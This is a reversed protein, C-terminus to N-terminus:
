IKDFNKIKPRLHESVNGFNIDSNDLYYDYRKQYDGKSFNYPWVDMMMNENNNNEKTRFRSDVMFKERQLEKTKQMLHKNAKRIYVNYYDRGKSQDFDLINKKPSKSHKKLTMTSSFKM